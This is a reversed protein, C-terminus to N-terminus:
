CLNATMSRDQTIKSATSLLEAMLFEICMCLNATMSRDQTRIYSTMNLNSQGFKHVVHLHVVIGFM